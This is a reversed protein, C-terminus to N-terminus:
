LRQGHVKRQNGSVQAGRRRRCRCSTCRNRVTEFIPKMLKYQQVADYDIFDEVEDPHDNLYELTVTHEYMSRLLKVAAFGYGNVAVLFIEMFDEVVLRGYFHAIKEVATDMVETRTFALNLADSLRGLVERWQPHRRDFATAADAFGYLSMQQNENQEM